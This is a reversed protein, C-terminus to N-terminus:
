ANKNNNAMLQDLDSIPAEPYNTQEQDESAVDQTSDDSETFDVPMDQLEETINESPVEQEVEPNDQESPVEQWEETVPTEEAQEPLVEENWETDAIDEAPIEIAPNSEEPVEEAVEELNSNQDEQEITQEESEIPQEEAVSTEEETLSANNNEEENLVDSWNLVDGAPKQELHNDEYFHSPLTNDYEEVMESSNEEAFSKLENDDNTGSTFWYNNDQSVENSEFDTSDSSSTVEEDPGVFHEVVNNLQETAVVPAPTLEEQNSSENSEQKKLDYTAKKPQYEYKWLGLFLIAIPRFLVYLVSAWTSWGYRKAVRYDWVIKLVITLVWLVASAIWTIMGWLNFYTLLWIVPASLWPILWLWKNTEAIDAYVITNYIPILFAWGKKWAKRYVEWKSIISLCTLVYVIFWILIWFGLFAWAIWWIMGIANMNLMDSPFDNLSLSFPLNSEEDESSEEPVDEIIEEDGTLDETDLVDILDALDEIMGSLEEDGINITDGETEEVSHVDEIDENDKIVEVEKTEKNTNTNNLEKLADTLETVEPSDTKIGEWLEEKIKISFDTEIGKYSDEVTSAKIQKFCSGNFTWELSESVGIVEAADNECFAWEWVKALRWPVALKTLKNSEFAKAGIQSLTKPLRVATLKNNRFASDGIIEVGEPIEIKEIINEAFASDSIQKLTNPLKVSTIVSNEFSKEWIETVKKWDITAPIEVDNDFCKYETIVLWWFKSQSDATAFCSTKTAAQTTACLAWLCLLSLLSLKKKKKKMITSTIYFLM